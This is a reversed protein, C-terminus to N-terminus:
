QNATPTFYCAVPTTEAIIAQSAKSECGELGSTFNRFASKYPNLPDTTSGTVNAHAHPLAVPTFQANHASRPLFWWFDGFARLAHLFM